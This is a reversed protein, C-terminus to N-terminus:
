ALIVNNQNSYNQLITQFSSMHHRQSQEKKINSKRNLPNQQETCIKLNKKKRFFEMSIKIPIANFGYIAKPLISM